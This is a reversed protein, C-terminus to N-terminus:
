ELITNIKYDRLFKKFSSKFYDNNKFISVIAEKTSISYASYDSINERSVKIVLNDDFDYKFIIFENNVYIHNLLFSYEIAASIQEKSFIGDYMGNIFKDLDNKIQIDTSDLFEDINKM